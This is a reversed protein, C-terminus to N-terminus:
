AYFVKFGIAFGNIELSVWYMTPGLLEVRTRIHFGYKETEITQYTEDKSCSDFADQVLEDCTDLDIGVRMATAQNMIFQENQM